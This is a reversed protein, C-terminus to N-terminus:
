PTAQYVSDENVPRVKIKAGDRLSGVGELVIKDGARLGEQVVFFQGSSEGIKIETNRVTGSSEVVYVFRKDQLEYTAKQPVLLASDVTIPLRVTGSSGSRVLADPNPFIARVTVSGTEPNIL